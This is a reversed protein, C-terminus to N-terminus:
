SAKYGILVEKFSAILHDANETSFCMPPKIKIVNNAPGDTGVLISRERFENKIHKALATDPAKSAPDIVMDVGLFLGSGRVDGIAPYRSQLSRFKYIMYNGLELAHAQLKESEIVELVAQGIACSVPNGGFSSFFEMGNHFAEAIETTCVVAAMPHGNGIPKGLIVIDPTVGHQEYGWFHTGVRGFGIQVEDAICVGGQGRIHDYIESLYGSPLPVQGGCGMISEAIFAGIAKDGNAKIFHHAYQAGANPGTYTGRYQDPMDAEIIHKPKGSGEMYAYKYHSVDISAITNGHYGQKIVAVTSQGTYSNAMRLALDSAASGSNVLFVKKLQEPFYRLLLSSYSALSDYHYRTNTNLQAMARQGATVVHPHCHGVHIINNYADLIAHGEGDYMYQFAASRMHIPRDYSLSMANSFNQTRASAINTSDSPPTDYGCASRWIESVHYPSISVWRKLLEWAPRESVTIYESDPRDRKTKASNCVSTCLRAAILYYLLDVEEAHLPIEAHYSNIVKAADGIPDNRDMMIYTLGVALENILSSYAVDGFDIIGTVSDGRTLVNWDNADNHIISKRLRPIRPIIKEKYQLVFYEVLRRDTPETIYQILPENLLFHDLDWVMQRACIALPKIHALQRDMRGLFQGYSRLLSKSVDSRDGWFSGELFSLLRFFQDPLQDDTILEEGDTAAIVKPYIAGHHGLHHLVQNEAVVTDYSERDYRYSKLVFSKDVCRVKYNTSDYGEMPSLDTVQLGWRRELLDIIPEMQIYIFSIWCSNMDRTISMKTSFQDAHIDIM